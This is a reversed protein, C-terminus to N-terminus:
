HSNPHDLLGVFNRIAFTRLFHWFHIKLCFLLPLSVTSDVNLSGFKVTFQVIFRFFYIANDNMKSFSKRYSQNLGNLCLDVKYISTIANNFVKINSVITCSFIISKFSLIVNPYYQGINIYLPLKKTVYMESCIIVIPITNQNRRWM